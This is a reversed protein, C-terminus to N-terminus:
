TIIDYHKSINTLESDLLLSATLGVIKVQLLSGNSSVGFSASPSSNGWSESKNGSVSLV